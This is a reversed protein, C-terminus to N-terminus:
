AGRSVGYAASSERLVLRVAAAFPKPPRGSFLESMASACYAGIAEVSVRISTLAPCSHRAVATDGFGIVSLQAPVRIGALACCRLAALAMEDSTCVLATPSQPGELAERLSIAVRKPTDAPIERLSLVGDGIRPSLEAADL